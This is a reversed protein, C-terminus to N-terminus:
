LQLPDGFLERMLNLLEQPDHSVLQFDVVPNRAAHSPSLAILKKGPHQQKIDRLFGDSPLDKMAFHLVIADIAPFRGLTVQAERLSYATLVNYGGTELVLKRTSLADPPKPEIVLITPRYEM